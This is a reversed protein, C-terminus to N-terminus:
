KSMPEDPWGMSRSGAGIIAQIWEVKGNRMKFMHCDPLGGAFLMYAVVLGAEADVLFRRPGHNSIVLGKPSCDHAPMPPGGAFSGGVTTQTGNEWRDCVKAFPVSAKPEAAFMEYYNNAAEMMAQRPTRQDPPLFTEWDQDKTALLGEPKFAFEKERAIITEIEAIKGSEVKLRAAFLVPKGNEEMVGQAHAGCKQTDILTRKLLPKGATEWFGKGMAQDAGNETFKVTPALPLSSANHEALSAFYKDTLSKLIDRTCGTQANAASFSGWALFGIAWYLPTARRRMSDEQFFTDIAPPLVRRVRPRKEPPDSTTRGARQNLLIRNGSERAAPTLIDRSCAVIAPIEWLRVTSRFFPQLRLQMWFYSAPPGGGKM